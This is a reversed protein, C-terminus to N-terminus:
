RCTEMTENYAAQLQEPTALASNLWECAKQALSFSLSHRSVGEVHFVGAFSCGRFNVAPFCPFPICYMLCHGNYKLCFYM